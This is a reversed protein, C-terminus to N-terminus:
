SPRGALHANRNARRPSLRWCTSGQCGDFPSPGRPAYPDIEDHHPCQGSQEDAHRRRTTVKESVANAMKGGNEGCTRRKTFGPPQEKWRDRPRPDPRQATEANDGARAGRNLREEPHTDRGTDSVQM